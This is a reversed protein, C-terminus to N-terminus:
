YGVNLLPVLLRMLNSDMWQGTKIVKKANSLSFTFCTSYCAIYTYLVFHINWIWMWLDQCLTFDELAISPFWLFFMFSRGFKLLLIICCICGLSLSWLYTDAMDFGYTINRKTAKHIERSRSTKKHHSGAILEFHYTDGVYHLYWKWGVSFVSFHAIHNFQIIIEWVRM